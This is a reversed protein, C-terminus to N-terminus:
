KDPCQGYKENLEKAKALVDRAYDTVSGRYQGANYAVVAKATDGYQRLKEALIAIGVTVNQYPDLLDTCGLKKMLEYNWRPQVQMLGHSDGNDGIASSDFSSERWIMAMVIAPDIGHQQSESIIHIQLDEDLPVDYLIVPPETELTTEPLETDETAPETTETPLTTAETIEVATPESITEQVTEKPAEPLIDDASWIAVAAALAIVTIMVGDFLKGLVEAV